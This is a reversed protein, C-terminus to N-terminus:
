IYLYIHEFYKWYTSLIQMQNIDFLKVKRKKVTCFFFCRVWLMNPSYTKQHLHSFRSIHRVWKYDFLFVYTGIYCVFAYKLTEELPVTQSSFPKTQRRQSSSMFLSVFLLFSIVWTIFAISLFRFLLICASRLYKSIYFILSSLLFIRCGPIAAEKVQLTKDRLRETVYEGMPIIQGDPSYFSLLPNNRFCYSYTETNTMLHDCVQPSSGGWIPVHPDVDWCVPPFFAGSDTTTIGPWAHDLPCCIYLAFSM